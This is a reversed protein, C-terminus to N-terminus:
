ESLGKLSSQLIEAPSNGYVYDCYMKKQLRSLAQSDELEGFRYCMGAICKWIRIVFSDYTNGLDKLNLQIVNYGNKEDRVQM